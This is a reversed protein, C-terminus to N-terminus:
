KSIKSKESEDIVMFEQQSFSNAKSENEKLHNIFYFGIVLILAIFILALFLNAKMIYLM